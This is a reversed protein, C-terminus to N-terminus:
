VKSAPDVEEQKGSLEVCRVNLDEAQPPKVAGGKNTYICVGLLCTTVGAVQSLKLANGFIAVSVAISTCNKVNGLVQLTVPGTHATVMFNMINLAWANFGSVLLLSLVHAVGTVSPAEASNWRLRPMLLTYPEAGELCLSVVFLLGASFPAMYYLLTVSDMKESPDLLRGQMISKMARLVTAGVAFFAGLANFNVEKTSCVVLGGCIVPMSLWTWANYRKRPPLAVALLVTILPSMAGLMQNFSPFIYKLSLNGMAVSLAFCAALPAVKRVRQEMSLETAGKGPKRVYYIQIHCIAWSFLMHVVTIALPFKYLTCSGSASDCVEGYLYLWKTFNSLSINFIFWGAVVLATELSKRSFHQLLQPGSTKQHLAELADLHGGQKKAPRQQIM